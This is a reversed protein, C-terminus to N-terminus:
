EEREDTSKRSDVVKPNTTSRMADMLDEARQLERQLKELYADYDPENYVNKKLRLSAMMGSSVSAQVGPGGGDIHARRILVDAFSVAQALTGPPNNEENAHHNRTAEVLWVPLNWEDLLWSGAVPHTTSFVEREAELLPLNEQQVNAIVRAYDEPFYRALFLKGIDHVLGAIFGKGPHNVECLRFIMRATVAAALSHKWFGELEFPLEGDGKFFCDTILVSLCLDRVTEFGLVVVALNVTGIRRPFGYFASNALKLLRTALASDSSILIALDSASTRPDDVVELLRSSILPLAPLGAASSALRRIQEAGEKQDDVGKLFTTEV